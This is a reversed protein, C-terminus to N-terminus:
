WFWPAVNEHFWCYGLDIAPLFGMDMLLGVIIWLCSLNLLLLLVFAVWFDVGGDKEIKRSKSRDVSVPASSSSDSQGCAAEAAELLLEEITGKRHNTVIDACFDKLVKEYITSLEKTDPIKKQLYSYVLWGYEDSLQLYAKPDRRLVMTRFEIVDM